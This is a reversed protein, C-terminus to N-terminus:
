VLIEFEEKLAKVQIFVDNIRQDLESTFVLTELTTM